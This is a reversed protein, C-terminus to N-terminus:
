RKPRVINWVEALGTRVVDRYLLVLMALAIVYGIVSGINFPVFTNYLAYACVLVTYCYFRKLKFDVPYYRGAFVTRLTFFVIYSLGTSIAAGQCGLIPVLITNGIINTVCAGVAVLVQLKSKKKFILGGVTTESITYMIPNFILFPLIYAAERYASGLLLAFVDKVLILSIGSFFMVLTIWQNGRQHFAKDEPYKTYHEVAMPAWLTNFTTQVIAFVNVLTMASTYIGVEEYSCYLNLSIKDIAQFLTTIGMSFIYPYAYTLLAKGSVKCAGASRKDAINWMDAQAIISVVLCIVAAAVTAVVLLFLYNHRIFLILPLAILIYSLKLTIQLASYLKSKFELRVVLQSFRYLIQVVTYVCLMVMISASFEFVVAGTCALVIVVVSLLCSVLVPLRVCKWLLDKRYEKSDSEYYYRVLAQDLGMCLVMLAISSYMTFISLQGYEEPDVIRTIIPTTLLGLLLNM